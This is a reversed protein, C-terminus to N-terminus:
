IWDEIISFPRGNVTVLELCALKLQEKTMNVTVSTSIVFDSIKTVKAPRASETDDSDDLRRKNEELKKRKFFSLEKEKQIVIEEFFTKHDRQFHKELNSNHNGTFVKDCTKCISKNEIKKYVFYDQVPHTGNRGM